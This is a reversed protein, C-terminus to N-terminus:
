VASAFRDPTLRAPTLRTSLPRCFGVATVSPRKAFVRLTDGAEEKSSRGSLLMSRDSRQVQGLAAERRGPRDLVSHRRYAPAPRRDAEASCPPSREGRSGAAGFYEFVPEVIASYSRGTLKRGKADFLAVRYDHQDRVM